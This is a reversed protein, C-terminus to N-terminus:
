EHSTVEARTMYEEQMRDSLSQPKDPQWDHPGRNGHVGHHHNERERGCIACKAHLAAYIIEFPTPERSIALKPATEDFHRGGQLLGYLREIEALLAPVDTRAHAIFEADADTMISLREVEYCGHGGSIVRRTGLHDTWDGHRWPEGTAGDARVRIADLDIPETM